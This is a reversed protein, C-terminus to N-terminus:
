RQETTQWLAGLQVEFASVLEALEAAGLDDLSSPHGLSDEAGRLRVEPEHLGLDLRIRRSGHIFLADAFDHSYSCHALLLSSRRRTPALLDESEAPGAAKGGLVHVLTRLLDAHLSPV